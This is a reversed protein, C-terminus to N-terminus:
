PVNSPIQKASELCSIVFQYKYGNLHGYGGKDYLTGVVVVDAKNTFRKDKLKKFNKRTVACLEDENVTEVWARHDRNICERNYLFQWEFGWEYTAKVRVTKGAYLKPNGVIECYSIDPISTAEAPQQQQSGTFLVTLVIILIQLPM